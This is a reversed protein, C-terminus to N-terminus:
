TWWAWHGQYRFSRQKAGNPGQYILEDSDDVWEHVRQPGEKDVLYGMACESFAVKPQEDYFM